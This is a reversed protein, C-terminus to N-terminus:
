WLITDTPWLGSGERVKIRKTTNQTCLETGKDKNFYFEFIYFAKSIFDGLHRYCGWVGKREEKTRKITVECCNTPYECAFSHLQM